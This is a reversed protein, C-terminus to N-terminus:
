SIAVATAVETALAMVMGGSGVAWCSAVAKAEAYGAGDLGGVAAEAVAFGDAGVWFMMNTKM